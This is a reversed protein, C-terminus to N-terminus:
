PNSGPSYTVPQNQTQATAPKSVLWAKFVQMPTPSAAVHVLRQPLNVRSENAYAYADVVTDRVFHTSTEAVVSEVYRPAAFLSNSNYVSLAYLVVDHPHQESYNLGFYHVATRWASSLIYAAAVVNVRPDFVNAVWEDQTSGPVIGRAHLGRLNSSNIEGLGLDVSHGEDVLRQALPIAAAAGLTVYSRRTDNDHFAYVNAGSEHAIIAALTEPHVAPAYHVLLTALGSPSLVVTDRAMVTSPLAFILAATLLAAALRLLCVRMRTM